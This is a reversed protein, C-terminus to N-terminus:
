EGMVEVFVVGNICGLLEILYNIVYNSLFIVDINEKDFYFNIGFLMLSFKKKVM